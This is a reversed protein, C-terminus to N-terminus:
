WSRLLRPIFFTCGVEPLHPQNFSSQQFSFESFSFQDQKFCFWSQRVGKTFIRIMSSSSSAPLLLCNSKARELYRFVSQSTSIPATALGYYQCRIDRLYLIKRISRPPFFECFMNWFAQKLWAQQLFSLSHTQNPATSKGLRELFSQPARALLKLLLQVSITSSPHVPHRAKSIKTHEARRPASLQRPLLRARGNIGQATLHSRTCESWFVWRAEASDKWVAAPTM